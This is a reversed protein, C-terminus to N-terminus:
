PLQVALAKPRRRVTYESPNFTLMLFTRPEPDVVGAARLQADYIAVDPHGPEIPGAFGYGKTSDFWIVSCLMTVLSGSHPANAIMPRSVAARPTRLHSPPLALRAPGHRSSPPPLYSLSGPTKQSGGVNFDVVVGSATRQFSVSFPEDITVSVSRPAPCKAKTEVIVVGEGGCDPCRAEMKQVMGPGIQRSIIKTGWGKCGSCNSVERYSQM